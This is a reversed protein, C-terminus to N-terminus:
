HFRGNVRILFKEVVNQVHYPSIRSEGRIAAQLIEDLEKPLNRRSWDSLEMHRILEEIKRQYAGGDSVDQEIEDGDLREEVRLSVRRSPDSEFYETENKLWRSYKRMFMLLAGMVYIKVFMKLDVGRSPDFRQLAKTLGMMAEGEAEDKPYYRANVMQNVLYRAYSMLDKIEKESLEICSETPV